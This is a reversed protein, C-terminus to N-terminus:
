QAGANSLAILRSNAFKSWGDNPWTDVIKQYAKKASDLDKKAESLRGVAFYARSALPFTDSYADAVKSYLQLARESDGREEAAAAANYLAVPALYSKSDVESASVWAKEAEAWNKADAYITGLLEFSRAKAYGGMKQTYTKVKETLEAVKTERDKEDTISKLDAYQAAVGEIEATAKKRSSDLFTVVGGTAVLAGLIAVVVIVLTKRNKQIFDILRDNVQTSAKSADNSM